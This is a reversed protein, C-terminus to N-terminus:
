KNFKTVNARTRKARKVVFCQYSRDISVTYHSSFPSNMSVRFCVVHPQVDRERCHHKHYNWTTQVYVLPYLSGTRNNAVTLKNVHIITGLDVVNVVQWTWELRHGHNMDGCDVQMTIQSLHCKLVDGPPRVYMPSNFLPRTVDVIACKVQKAPPMIARPACRSWLRASPSFSRWIFTLPCFHPNTINEVRRQKTCNVTWM